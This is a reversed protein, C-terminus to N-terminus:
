PEGVKLPQAIRTAILRGRAAKSVRVGFPASERDLRRALWDVDMASARELRFRRIQLPAMELAALEGSERDIDVLYTLSLDGRYEEYGAIGEYDNLFDGCGHMILRNKYVELAKSHHSSHGHVISVGAADIVAQAFRRQEESIEYGWNPGWHLSLILIDGIRRPGKIADCVLALSRTSLDPLLNVGPCDNTASWHRPVGSSPLAFSYVIVRGKGAVEMIAPDRAEDLDRGAGAAKIGMERLTDLTDILGTRGWDLVHNNALACCDIAFSQLCKANEPSVRYNIGKAEYAESRTISTELNVVRADPGKQRLIDLAAGWIYAHDVPAPISGSARQALSVYDAASSAFDEHLEPPCPDPLIQDVGRGVMVDGCLFVRIIKKDSAARVRDGSASM